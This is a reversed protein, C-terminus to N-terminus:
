GHIKARREKQHLRRCLRQSPRAIGTHDEGGRSPSQPPMRLHVAIMRGLGPKYTEHAREGIFEGRVADADVRQQWAKDVRWEVRGEPGCLVIGGSCLPRKGGADRHAPLALRLINGPYDSEECRGRRAIHCACLDDDIASIRGDLAVMLILAVLLSFM